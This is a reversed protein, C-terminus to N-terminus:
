LLDTDRVNLTRSTCLHAYFKDIETKCIKQKEKTAAAKEEETGAYSYIIRQQEQYQANDEMLRPFVFDKGVHSLFVDRAAKFRKLYDISGEDDKQRLNVFSKMADCITKMIYQTSEYSLAHQEIADLLKIPDDKVSAEFDKRSQLKSRMTPTCQNWLTAAATDRNDNYQVIRDNYATYEIEFQKAYQANERTKTDEDESTSALQTPAFPTFDMEERKELANGIDIGKKYTRKMHNILFNTVTIFDSAQKASGVYYM